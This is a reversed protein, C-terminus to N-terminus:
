EPIQVNKLGGNRKVHVFDIPKDDIIVMRMTVPKGCILEDYEFGAYDLLEKTVRYDDWSRGTWFVIYWGEKKKQNVWEVSGNIVDSSGYDPRRQYTITGDVDVVLIKEQEPNKGEVDDM